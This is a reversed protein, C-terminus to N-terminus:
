LSTLVNWPLYGILMLFLARATGNLGWSRFHPTCISRMDFLTQLAAISQLYILSSFLLQILSSFFYMGLAAPNSKVADSLNLDSVRGSSLVINTSFCKARAMTVETENWAAIAEAPGSLSPAAVSPVLPSLLLLNADTGAPQPGTAGDSFISAQSVRSLILAKLKFWESLYLLRLRQEVGLGSLPWSGTKNPVATDTAPFPNAVDVPNLAAAAAATADTVGSEESQTAVRVLRGTKEEATV